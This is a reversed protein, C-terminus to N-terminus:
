QTLRRRERMYCSRILGHGAHQGVTNCCSCIIYPRRSNVHATYHFGRMDRETRCILCEAHDNGRGDPWTSGVLRGCACRRSM